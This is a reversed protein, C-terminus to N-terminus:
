GMPRSASASKGLSARRMLQAGCLGGLFTTPEAFRVLAAKGQLQPQQDDRGRVLSGAGRNCISTAEAHAVSRLPSPCCSTNPRLGVSPLGFSAEKRTAGSGPDSVDGKGAKGCVPNSGHDIPPDSGDGIRKDLIERLRGHPITDFYKDCRGCRAGVRRGNGDGGFSRSESPRIRRAGPASAM